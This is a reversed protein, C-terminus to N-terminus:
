IIVPDQCSGGFALRENAVPLRKLSIPGDGLPLAGPKSGPMRLNSDERGLWIIRQHLHVYLASFFFLHSGISTRCIRRSRIQVCATRGAPRLAPPGSYLIAQLSKSCGFAPGFPPTCPPVYYDERGPWNGSNASISEPLRPLPLFLCM